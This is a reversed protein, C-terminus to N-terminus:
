GMSLQCVLRLNKNIVGGRGKGNPGIARAGGHLDIARGHQANLTRIRNGGQLKVIQPALGIARESIRPLSAPALGIAGKSKSEDATRPRNGQAIRFRHVTTNKMLFRHFDNYQREFDTFITASDHKEM